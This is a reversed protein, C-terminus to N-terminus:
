APVKVREPAPRRNTIKLYITLTPIVYAFWVIVQLWSPTPTFNISGRLVTGYWSDPPIAASVDFAKTELLPLIGVEQWEHIGYALVGAAVIILAIGTWTFLTSLNLRLAGRYILVGIVVSTALGLIAGIIPDTSSGTSRIGAWLFLATELGERAVAAFAIFTMMWASGLLAKDVQGHLQQKIARANKAMWFIMWTILGAALISMTGAFAEAAKESLSESTLTLIAGFGISLLIALGVGAWLRPLAARQDLKVLYAVLIAVILAAELGERLGILYNAFM